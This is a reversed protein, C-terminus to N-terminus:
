IIRGAAQTGLTMKVDRDRTGEVVVVLAKPLAIGRRDGFTANRLSEVAIWLV